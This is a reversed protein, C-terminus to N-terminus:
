SASDRSRTSDQLVPRRPRQKSSVSKIVIKGPGGKPLPTRAQRLATDLLARIAPDDLDRASQLVIHRVQTGKGRLLKQPDTLRAGQMFFVSVWRPYLALSVIVDSARETPAFGVALANYNDYVLELAGPMRKRLKSRASRALTAIHPDYKAIFSLLRQAPKQLTAKQASDLKM